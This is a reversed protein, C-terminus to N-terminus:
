VKVALNLCELLASTVHSAQLAFPCAKWLLPYLLFKQSALPLPIFYDHSKLKYM